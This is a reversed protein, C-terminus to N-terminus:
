PTIVGLCKFTNSMENKINLTNLRMSNEIILETWLEIWICFQETQGFYYRFWLILINREFVSYVCLLEYIGPDSFWRVHCIPTSVIEQLPILSRCRHMQSMLEETGWSRFLPMSPLSASPVTCKHIPFLNLVFNWTM